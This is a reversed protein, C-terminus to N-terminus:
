LSSEGDPTDSWRARNMFRLFEEVKASRRQELLQRWLPPM